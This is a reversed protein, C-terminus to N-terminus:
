KSKKLQTKGLYGALSDFGLTIDAFNGKKDPTKISVVAAGYTM